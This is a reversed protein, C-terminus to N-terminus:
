GNGNPRVVFLVRGHRLREGRAFDEVRQHGERGDAAVGVDRQDVPYLLVEGGGGGGGGAGCSEPSTLTSPCKEQILGFHPLPSKMHRQMEQATKLISKRVKRALSQLYKEREHLLDAQTEDKDPRHKKHLRKSHKEHSEELSSGSDTSRESARRKRATHATSRHIDRTALGSNPRWTRQPLHRQSLRRRSRPRPHLTARRRFRPHAAYPHESLATPIADDPTDTSTHGRSTSQYSRASTPTARATVSASEGHFVESARRARGSSQPAPTSADMADDEDACLPFAILISLIFIFSKFAPNPM